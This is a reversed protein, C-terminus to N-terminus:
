KVGWLKNWLKTLFNPAKAYEILPESLLDTHRVCRDDLALSSQRCNKYACLGAKKGLRAAVAVVPEHYICYKGSITTRGCQQKTRPRIAHCRNASM